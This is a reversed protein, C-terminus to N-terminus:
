FNVKSIFLIIKRFKLLLLPQLKCFSWILIIKRIPTVAKGVKLVVEKFRLILISLGHNKETLCNEM